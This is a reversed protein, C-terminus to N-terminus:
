RQCLKKHLDVVGLAIVQNASQYLRPDIAQIEKIMGRVEDDVYVAIQTKKNEKKQM